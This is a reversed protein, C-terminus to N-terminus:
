SRRSRSGFISARRSGNAIGVNLITGAVAGDDESPSGGGPLSPGLSTDDPSEERYSVSIVGAGVGLVFYPGPATYAVLYNALAAGVILNTTEHYTCCGEDSDESFRGGFVMVGFELAGAGMIRAYNIELGGALGLSVDTGAGIRLGIGGEETQAVAPGAFLVGACLALLTRNRSM